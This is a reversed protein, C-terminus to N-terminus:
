EESKFTLKYTNSAEPTRLFGMEELYHNHEENGASTVIRCIGKETFFGRNDQYLFTGIKFDRYSPAVFDLDLVLSGDEYLNGLLLGAPVMESLVFLSFNHDEDFSFDPQFTEIEKRYHTLFTKLYESDRQEFLLSFFDKKTYIGYLYYLNILVIFANMAAVPISGILIGYISFTFAGALNVIRLRIIASMMLSGAVLASALYGILEYYFAPEM